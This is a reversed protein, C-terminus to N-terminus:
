IKFHRHPEFVHGSHLAQGTRRLQRLQIGEESFYVRPELSIRCLAAQPDPSQGLQGESDVGVGLSFPLPLPVALLGDGRNLCSHLARLRPRIRSVNFLFRIVEDVRHGSWKNSAFRTRRKSM